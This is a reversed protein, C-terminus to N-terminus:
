KDGLSAILDDIVPFHFPDFVTERNIWRYDQCFRLDGNEKPVLVVPTAFRSTSLKIINRDLMEQIKKKAWEIKEPSFRYPKRSVINYNERLNFPM